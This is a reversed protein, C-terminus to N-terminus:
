AASTPTRVAASLRANRFPGNGNARREALTVAHGTEGDVVLRDFVLHIRGRWQEPRQAISGIEGAGFIAAAGAIAAGAGDIDIAGGHACALDRDRLDLAGEDGRDFAQRPLAIMGDLKGEDAGVYRLAAKTNGAHHHRRRHQQAPIGVRGFVLDLCCDGVDAAAADIWAEDIRDLARRADLAALFRDFGAWAGADRGRLGRLQHGRQRRRFSEKAISVSSNLRPEGGTTCLRDMILGASTDAILLHGVHTKRKKGGEGRRGRQDGGGGARLVMIAAAPVTVAAIASVPAAIAAAVAGSGGGPRGRSVCRRRAGAKLGAVARLRRRVEITILHRTGLHGVARLLITTGVGRTRCLRAWAAIPVGLGAARVESVPRIAIVPIATVVSGIAVIPVPIVIARVVAVPIAIAIVGIAAVPIAIASRVLPVARRATGVATPAIVIAAPATRVVMIPAAVVAIVPAIVPHAVAADIAQRAIVRGIAPIVAVAAEADAEPEIRDQEARVVPNRIGIIVAQRRGIARIAPHAIVVVRQEDIDIGALDDVHDVVDEPLAFQGPPM